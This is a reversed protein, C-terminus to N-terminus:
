LEGLEGPSHLILRACTAMAKPGLRGASGYIGTLGGIFLEIVVAMFSALLGAVSRMLM